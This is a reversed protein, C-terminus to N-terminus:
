AIGVGVNSSVSRLICVPMLKSRGLKIAAWNLAFALVPPPLSFSGNKKWSLGSFLGCDLEVPLRRSNAGIGLYVTCMSEFSIWSPLNGSLGVGSLGVWVFARWKSRNLALIGGIMCNLVNGLIEQM